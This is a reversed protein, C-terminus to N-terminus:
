KVTIEVRRDSWCEKCFKGNLLAHVLSKLKGNNEVVYATDLGNEAFWAKVAEARRSGLGTNYDVSGRFDCFSALKIESVGGQKAYDLADQLVAVQDDRINSKDFDFYVVFTVPEIRPDVQIFVVTKEECTAECVPLPFIYKNLGIIDKGELGEVWATDEDVPATECEYYPCEIDKDYKVGYAADYSGAAMSVTGFVLMIAFLISLLKM